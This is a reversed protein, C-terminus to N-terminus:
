QRPLRCVFDDVRDFVYEGFYSEVAIAGGYFSNNSADFNEDGTGGLYSSYTLATGTPNVESVFADSTGSLTSQFANAIPFDTSLTTGTVYANPPNASDIAIGIGVDATSGGLYSSYVLTDTGPDIKAVFGNSGANANGSGGGYNSQFVGGTVPFDGTIAAPNDDTTYGTIYVSGSGDIAVGFASDDSSGGLYTSYLIGAGLPSIKTVFVDFYNFSGDFNCNGDTGCVSNNTVDFDNSFTEGAVFADGSSDVVIANGVDTLTGGLYTSYVFSAGDASIEAVFADSAGNILAGNNLTPFLPVHTPFNVSYTDGTVYAHGSDDIAIGFADDFDNGGIYTGYVLAGNSDLKFAIADTCPGTGSVAGPPCTSGQPSGPMSQAGGAAPFDASTTIGAVYAAGAPEVAISTGLEDGTGGVFTTYGLSGDSKIKVVFADFGGLSPNVGPFGSTSASHGTIYTNSSGDYAIGFGADEADGGLYSAYSLQPDIVLERNHDTTGSSSVFTTPKYFSAPM